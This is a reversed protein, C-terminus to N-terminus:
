NPDNPTLHPPSLCIATGYTQNDSNVANAVLVNSIYHHTERKGTHVKSQGM